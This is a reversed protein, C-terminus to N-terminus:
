SPNAFHPAPRRLMEAAKLAAAAFLRRAEEPSDGRVTLNLARSGCHWGNKIPTITPEDPRM